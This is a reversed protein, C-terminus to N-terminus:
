ASARGVHRSGHFDPTARGSYGELLSVCATELRPVGRARGGWFAVSVVTSRAGLLRRGALLVWPEVGPSSRFPGPAPVQGPLFPPEPGPGPRPVRRRRTGMSGASLM